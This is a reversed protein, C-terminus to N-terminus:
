PYLPELQPNCFANVNGSPTKFTSPDASPGVNMAFQGLRQGCETPPPNAGGVSVAVDFGVRQAAALSWADVGLDAAQVLAEVTYGTDTSRVDMKEGVWPARSSPTYSEASVPAGVPTAAVVLEKTGIADYAPPADYLGDTDAFLHVADGCFARDDLSPYLASKSVQVFFYLGDPWWAVAMQASVDSPRPADGVSFWHSTDIEALALGCELVGDITPTKSLAPLAECRAPSSPGSCVADAPAGGSTADAGLWVIPANSCGATGLLCVTFLAALWCSM